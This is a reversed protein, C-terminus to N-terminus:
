IVVRGLFFLTCVCVFVCKISHEVGHKCAVLQPADGKFDLKPELQKKMGSLRGLRFGFPRVRCWFRRKPVAKSPRERQSLLKTCATLGKLLPCSTCM